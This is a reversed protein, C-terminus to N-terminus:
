FKEFNGCCGGLCYLLGEAHPFAIAGIGTVPDIDGLILMMYM